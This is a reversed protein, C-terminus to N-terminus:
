RQPKLTIFRFSGDGVQVLWITIVGLSGSPGDLRGTVKYFIGYENERDLVAENEAIVRRIARELEDPNRLSFGAQALFRSKDSKLRFVLLYHTLKEQPIDANSPIKM